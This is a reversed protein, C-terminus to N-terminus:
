FKKTFSGARENVNTVDYKFQQYPRRLEEDRFDWSPIVALEAIIKEPLNPLYCQFFEPDINLWDLWENSTFLLEEAHKYDQKLTEIRRTISRNICQRQHLIQKNTLNKRKIREQLRQNVLEEQDFSELFIPIGFFFAISDRIVIYALYKYGLQQTKDESSLM